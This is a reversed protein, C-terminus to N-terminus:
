TDSRPRERASPHRRTQLVCRIRVVRRGRRGIVPKENRKQVTAYAAAHEDPGDAGGVELELGLPESEAPEDPEDAV